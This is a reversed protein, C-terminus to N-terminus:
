YANSTFCANKPTSRLAVTQLNEDTDSWATRLKAPTSLQRRLPLSNVNGKTFIAEFTYFDKFYCQVNWAWHDMRSPSYPILSGHPYSTAILM